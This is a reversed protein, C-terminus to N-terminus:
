DWWPTMTLLPWCLGLLADYVAVHLSWGLPGSVYRRPAGPGFTLCLGAAVFATVGVLAYLTVFVHRRWEDIWHHGLLYCMGGVSEFAWLYIPSCWFIGAVTTAPETTRGRLRRLCCVAGATLVATATVITSPFRELLQSTFSVLTADM